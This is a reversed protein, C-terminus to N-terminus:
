EKPMEYVKKKRLICDQIEQLVQLAREETPYEGLDLIRNGVVVNKQKRETGYKAYEVIDVFALIKGGQSQIWIGGRM